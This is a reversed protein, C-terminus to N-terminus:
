GSLRQEIGDVKDLVYQLAGVIDATLESYAMTLYGYGDDGVVDWRSGAVQQVDQAIFGRHEEDGSLYKYSAPKLARVLAASQEPDMYVIDRKKRRDSNQQCSVNYLIKDIILRSYGANLSIVAQHQMDGNNGWYCAVGDGFYSLQSWDESGGTRFMVFEDGMWGGKTGYEFGIWKAGMWANYSGYNINIFSDAGSSGEASVIMQGGTIVANSLYATGDKGLGFKSGIALKLDSRSTGGISRTFTGSGRITVDNDATGTDKTGSYLSNTDISFAGITAGIAQLDSVNIKAATVSNAALENATITNAAIQAATVTRAAIKGGNIYTADSSDCWSSLAVSGTLKIHQAEILVTSASQNILSAITAGTYDTTSVKNSIQGAQIIIQSEAASIRTGYGDVVSQDAKLTIAQANQEILTTNYTISESLQTVIDSLATNTVYNSVVKEILRNYERQTDRDATIYGATITEMTLRKEGPKLLNFALKLCTFWQGIIGHQAATTKARTGVKFNDVNYGANALDAATIIIQLKQKSVDSLWATGKSLLQSATTVDDWIHFGVIRGFERIGDTDEIYDKGDNVSAVTLRSRTLTSEDVIEAGLPILVTVIGTGDEIQRVDLLNDGLNIEQTSQASFSALWDFYLVGNTKRIIPYGGYSNVLDHIRDITKAYATYERYVYDNNDTVTINGLQIQKSTEVQSNHSTLLATVLGNLNGTYTFPRAVSDNLLTLYGECKVTHNMYFDSSIYYPRGAFIMNGDEYVTIDDVFKHIHGYAVNCPPITFDFEGSAGAELTIPADVLRLEDQDIDTAFFISNNLTATYAM